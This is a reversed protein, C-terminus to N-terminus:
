ARHILKNFALMFLLVLRLLFSRSHSFDASEAPNIAAEM